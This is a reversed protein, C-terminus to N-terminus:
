NIASEYSILRLEIKPDLFMLFYQIELELAGFLANRKVM